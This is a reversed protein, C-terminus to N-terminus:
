EMQECMQMIGEALLMANAKTMERSSRFCGAFVEVRVGIGYPKFAFRVGSELDIGISDIEEDESKYICDIQAAIDFSNEEMAPIWATTKVKEILKVVKASKDIPKRNIEVKM